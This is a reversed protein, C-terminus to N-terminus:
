ITYITLIIILHNYTIEFTGKAGVNLKKSYQVNQIHISKYVKSIFIELEQYFDISVFLQIFTVNSVELVM